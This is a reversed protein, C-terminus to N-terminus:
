IYVFDERNYIANKSSPPRTNVANTITTTLRFRTEAVM